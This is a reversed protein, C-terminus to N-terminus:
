FPDFDQVKGLRYQYTDSVQMLHDLPVTRLREPMGEAAPSWSYGTGNKQMLRATIEGLKRLKLTDANM